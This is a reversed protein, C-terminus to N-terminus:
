SLLIHKLSGRTKRHSSLENRKNSYLVGSHPHVVTQKDLWGTFSMKIKELKQCNSFFAAICIWTYPPNKQKSTQKTCMLASSMQSTHACLQQTLFQWIAKSFPQVMKWKWWVHILDKYEINYDLQHIKAQWKLVINLPIIQESLPM